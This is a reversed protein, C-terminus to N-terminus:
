WSINNRENEVKLLIHSIEPNILYIDCLNDKICPFWVRRRFPLCEWSFFINYECKVIDTTSHWQGIFCIVHCYKPELLFCRKEAMM